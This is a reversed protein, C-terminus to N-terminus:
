CSIQNKKQIPQYIELSREKTLYLAQKRKLMDMLQKMETFFLKMYQQTIKYFIEINPLKDGLLKTSWETFTELNDIIKM